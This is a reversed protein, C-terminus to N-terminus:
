RHNKPKVRATRGTKSYLEGCKKCKASKGKFAIKQGCLCAWGHVRAPCGLVIAYDPVDKTVVSGAAVFAYRGITVGCVITANAGISAGERILTPVLWEEKARRVVHMTRPFLDNTFVCNPGLFVGDEATVGEWIQVGNKVTVHNGLKAGSEVFAFDGINCHEGIVAGPMVHAHAWVRSHAGIKAGEDVLARPHAFYDVRSM